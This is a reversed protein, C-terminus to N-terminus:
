VQIKPNILKHTPRYAKTSRLYTVSERTCVSFTCCDSVYPWACHSFCVCACESTRHPETYSFYLIHQGPSVYLYVSGHLFIVASLPLSLPPTCSLVCHSRCVNMSGEKNDPRAGDCYGEGNYVCAWRWQVRVCVSVYLRLRVVVLRIGVDM